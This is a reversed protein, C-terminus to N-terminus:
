RVAAPGRPRETRRVRCRISITFGITLSDSLMAQLEVRDKVETEGCQPHLVREATPFLVDFDVAAKELRHLVRRCEVLKGDMFSNKTGIEYNKSEEEDAFQIEPPFRPDANVVGPKNGEAYSAYIMSDPTLAFNTTIRPTTSSFEEEILVNTPITKFNGITDEAYRVEATVEWRETLDFGLSGFIAQNDVRTEGFVITPATALYHREELDRRSTYYYVGALWRM